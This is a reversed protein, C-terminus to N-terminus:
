GRGAVGFTTEIEGALADAASGFTAGTRNAQEQLADLQHLLRDRQAPTLWPAREFQRMLRVRTRELVLDAGGNGGGQNSQAAAQDHLALVRLAAATQRAQTSVSIVRDDITPATGRGAVSGVVLGVLLAAGAVAFTRRRRRGAPIYLAV